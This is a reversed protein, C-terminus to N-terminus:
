CWEHPPRLLLTNAKFLGPFGAVAEEAGERQGLGVGGGLIDKAQALGSDDIAVAPDGQEVVGDFNGIHLKMFFDFDVHDWVCCLLDHLDTDPPIGFHHVCYGERQLSEADVKSSFILGLTDV